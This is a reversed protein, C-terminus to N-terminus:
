LFSKSVKLIVGFSNYLLEGHDFGVDYGVKYGNRLPRIGELYASLQNVKRFTGPNRPMRIVSINGVSVSRFPDTGTEYTGMNQSFSLKGTYFWQFAYVQAAMHLASVRNNIFFQDKSKGLNDRAYSVPTIFPTGLGVGKYSWGELYEYNNYYDEAGSRTKKSDVQGAQNATYLFEFLIKKLYVNGSRRKNNTLSIGRLGDEINALSSLAGKDYFSQSYLFLTFDNFKYEAGLDLSGLHNGVKSQAPAYVQGTIVHWYTQWGSLNFHSGFVRKEDGWLAEHNYGAQFNIRWSPKGVKVYLSNELYYTKFNAPESGYQVSANGAYGNAFSGKFAFLKGFIPISYYDPISLMVKPIGLANGSISFAGSSLATDVLGVIDKSRGAKLEFIGARGKVFGEIVDFRSYNGINARGEFSAAWDFTKTTDYDKRISGILSGSGGSLPMSGFQNSRFWFPVVGSTTGIGDAELSVHVDKIQATVTSYFFLVAAFVILRKMYIKNLPYYFSNFM